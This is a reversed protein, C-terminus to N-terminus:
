PTNPDQDISRRYAAIEEQWEDYLPNNEFMGAYKVLPHASEPVELAVIAAGSRMRVQLQENLRAMAEDPTAGEATLELPARCSVRYGNNAVQEVLIPIQM